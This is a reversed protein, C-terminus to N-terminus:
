IFMFHERNSPKDIAANVSYLRRISDIALDYVNSELVFVTGEKWDDPSFVFKLGARHMMSESLRGEAKVYFGKSRPVLEFMNRLLDLSLSTKGGGSAGAFRHVGPGFGGNLEYDLNLSGSPILHQSSSTVFNYHLQANNKDKLFAM